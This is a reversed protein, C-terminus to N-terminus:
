AYPRWDNTTAYWLVSQQQLWSVRAVTLLAEGSVGGETISTSVARLFTEGSATITMSGAGGGKLVPSFGWALRPAM